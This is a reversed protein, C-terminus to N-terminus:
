SSDGDGDSLQSPAQQLWTNRFALDIAVAAFGFAVLSEAVTIAGQTLMPWSFYSLPPGCQLPFPVCIDPARLASAARIVAFAGIAGQKLMPNTDGRVVYRYVIGFLFLSIALMDISLEWQANLGNDTFLTFGVSVPAVAFSGALASIVGAKASELRDSSM